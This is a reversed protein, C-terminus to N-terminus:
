RGLDARRQDGIEGAVITWRVISFLGLPHGIAALATLIKVDLPMDTLNPFRAVGPVGMNGGYRILIYCGIAVFLPMGLMGLYTQGLRSEQDEVLFHRRTLLYGEPSRVDGHVKRTVWCGLAQLM